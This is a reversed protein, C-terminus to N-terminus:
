WIPPGCRRAPRRCDAPQGPLPHVFHLTLRTMDTADVEIAAIGNVTVGPGALRERREDLFSESRAM